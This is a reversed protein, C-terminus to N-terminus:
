FNSYYCYFSDAISNQVIKVNGTLFQGNEYKQLNRCYKNYGTM